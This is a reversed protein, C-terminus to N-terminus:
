KIRKRVVASGLIARLRIEYEEISMEGRVFETALDSKEKNVSMKEQVIDGIASGNKCEKWAYEYDIESLHTKNVFDNIQIETWGMDEMEDFIYSPISNLTEQHMKEGIMYNEYKGEDVGYYERVKKWDKFEDYKQLILGKVNEESLYLVANLNLMDEETYGQKIMKQEYSGFQNIAITQLASMLVIMFVLLFVAVKKM